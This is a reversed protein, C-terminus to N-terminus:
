RKEFHYLVIGILVQFVMLAGILMWQFRQLTSIMTVLNEHKSEYESRTVYMMRENNLQNRLDNMDELRRNIEGRAIDIAAAYSMLKEDIRAIKICVSNESCVDMM